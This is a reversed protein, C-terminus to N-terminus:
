ILLLLKPNSCCILILADCLNVYLNFMYSLIIYEYGREEQNICIVVDSEYFTSSSARSCTWMNFFLSSRELLQHRELIVLLYKLTISERSRIFKVLFESFHKGCIYIASAVQCWIDLASIIFFSLFSFSLFLSLQIESWLKQLDYNKMYRILAVNRFSHSQMQNFWESCEYINLLGSERKKKEGRSCTVRANTSKFNVMFFYLHNLRLDRFYLTIFPNRTQIMDLTLVSAILPWANCLYRYHLRRRNVTVLLRTAYLFLM